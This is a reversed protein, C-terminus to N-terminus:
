MASSIAETFNTEREAYKQMAFISAPHKTSDYILFPPEGSAPILRISAPNLGDGDDSPCLTVGVM